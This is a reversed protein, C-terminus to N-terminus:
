PSGTVSFFRDRKGSPLRWTSKVTRLRVSTSAISPSIVSWIQSAQLNALFGGFEAFQGSLVFSLAVLGEIADM